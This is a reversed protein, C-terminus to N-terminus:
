CDKKKIGWGCGCLQLNVKIASLVQMELVKFTGAEVAQPCRTGFRMHVEM